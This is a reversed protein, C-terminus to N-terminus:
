YHNLSGSETESSSTLRKVVSGLDESKDSRENDGRSSIQRRHQYMLDARYRVSGRRRVATVEIEQVTRLSSFMVHFSNVIQTTCSRRGLTSYGLVWKREKTV